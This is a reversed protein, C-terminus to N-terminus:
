FGTPPAFARRSITRCRACPRTMCSWSRTARSWRDSCACTSCCGAPPTCRSNSRSGSMAPSFDSAASRSTKSRSIARRRAARPNRHPGQARYVDSDLLADIAKITEAAFRQVGSSRQTLFRGNIAIRPPPSMLPAGSSRHARGGRQCFAQALAAGRRGQRRCRRPARASRSDDALRRLWEAAHEVDADAWQQNDAEFVGEPDHVPVLSYSVLASNHENM